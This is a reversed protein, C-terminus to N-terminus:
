HYFKLQSATLKCNPESRQYIKNEKEIRRGGGAGDCGGLTLVVGVGEVAQKM